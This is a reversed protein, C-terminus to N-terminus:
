FECECFARLIKMGVDGSKEPHFQCGMVNGKQVAATIQAGYDTTAIISSDCNSAYFSHVFYVYDGSTVGQLLASQKKIELANWGIHPIKLDASINGQMPIVEGQLLGLGEHEGYEYSKQFLVQMGLCIGMIPKGAAAEEKLLADIGRERLAAMADAFAGVGPLVIKEAAQLQIADSGVYIDAGVSKLSSCLSFLNGVGYDVVAIM